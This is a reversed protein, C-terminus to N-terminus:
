HGCGGSCGSCGSGCSSEEGSIYFNIAGYVSNILEEFEGSAKTLAVMEPYENVKTYLEDLESKLEEIKQENRTEKDTENGLSVRLLNFKGILNQLEENAMYNNKAANYVIFKEDDNIMKGLENAKELITSM